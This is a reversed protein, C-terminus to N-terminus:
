AEPQEAPATPDAEDGAHDTVHMDVLGEDRFTEFEGVAVGSRRLAHWTLFVQAAYEDSTDWKRVKATKFFQLRDQSTIRIDEHVSGDALEANTYYRQLAM